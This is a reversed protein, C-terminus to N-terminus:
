RETRTWKKISTLPHSAVHEERVGEGSQSFLHLVGEGVHQRTVWTHHESAGDLFEVTVAAVDRFNM